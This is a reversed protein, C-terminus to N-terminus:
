CCWSRCAGPSSASRSARTACTGSRSARAARRGGRGRAAPARGDGEDASRRRGRRRGARAHRDLGRREAAGARARAAGPRAPPRRDASPAADLRAPRFGDLISQMIRERRGAAVIMAVLPSLDLPGFMPLFRRFVGVFPSATDDLFTRIRNIWINYPLRVWSSLIWAIIILTYLWPVHAVFTQIYDVTHNSMLRASGRPRARRARRRHHRRAGLRAGDAGARGGGHGRTLDGHAAPRLLERRDRELVNATGVMTSLILARATAASLGSTIGADEFAEIVLGLFAPGSGALATAADFLREELTVVTGLQGLWGLVRAEAESGTFPGSAFCLTGAGVKVGVNPMCRFLPVGQELVNELTTTAVGAAVSVVATGADILESAERLVREVDIPKVAILVVDARRVLEANDAVHQVGLREALGAARGSGRDTVLIREGLSPDARLWGELMAGAMNGAGISGLITTESM